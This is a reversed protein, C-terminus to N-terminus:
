QLLQLVQQETQELVIQAPEVKVTEKDILTGGKAYRQGDDDEIIEEWGVHISLTLVTPRINYPLKTYIILKASYPPNKDAYEDHMWTDFYFFISERPTFGDTGALGNDLLDITGNNYWGPGGNVDILDGNQGYVEIIMKTNDSTFTFLSTNMIQFWTHTYHVDTFLNNGYPVTHDGCNQVAPDHNNCHYAFIAPLISQGHLENASHIVEDSNTNIRIGSRTNVRMGTSLRSHNGSDNSLNARNTSNIMQAWANSVVIFMSLSILVMIKKM